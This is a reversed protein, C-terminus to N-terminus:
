KTSAIADCREVVIQADRALQKEKRQLTRLKAREVNLDVAVPKRSQVPQARTCFHFGGQQRGHGLCFDTYLVTRTETEIAYGRELTAQTDAILARVISLDQTAKRKCQEVPSACAILLTVTSLAILHKM